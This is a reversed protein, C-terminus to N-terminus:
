LRRRRRRRTPRRRRRANTPPAPACSNSCECCGSCAHTSWGCKKNWPDRHGRCWGDCRKVVAPAGGTCQSDCNFCTKCCKGAMWRYKKVDCKGWSKQQACTHKGDPPVDSCSPVATTPAATPESSPAATPESSPAATPKSSPKGTPRHSHPNHSHPYHSPTATPEDTVPESSPPQSPPATPDPTPMRTPAASPQITPHMVTPPRTPNTTPDTTAASPGSADGKECNVWSNPYKPNKGYDGWGTAGGGCSTRSSPICKRMYPCCFGTECQGSDVCNGCQKVFKKKGGCNPDSGGVLPADTGGDCHNCTKACNTKMWSVYLQTCYGSRKWSICSSGRLDKCAPDVRPVGTPVATPEDTQGPGEVPPDTTTTGACEAETKGNAALVNAKYAGQMNPTDSSLRDGAKYRCVYIRKAANIGCGLEKV